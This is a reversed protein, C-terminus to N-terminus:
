LKEWAFLPSLLSIVEWLGACVAAAVYLRNVRVSSARSLWRDKLSLLGISLASGGWWVWGPVGVLFEVAAPQTMGSDDFLKAFAPVVLASGICVLSGVAGSQVSDM